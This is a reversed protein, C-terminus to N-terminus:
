SDRPSPSTYLLCRPRTISGEANSPEFLNGTTVNIETGTQVNQFLVNPQDTYDLYDVNMFDDPTFLLPANNFGRSGAIIISEKNVEITEDLFKQLFNNQNFKCKLYFTDDEYSDAIAFGTYINVYETLELVAIDIQISYDARWGQAEWGDLLIKLYERDEKIAQFTEVINLFVGWWKASRSLELKIDVTEPYRMIYPQQDTATITIQITDNM